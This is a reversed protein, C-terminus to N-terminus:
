CCIGNFFENPFNSKCYPDIYMPSEIHMIRVPKKQHTAGEGAGNVHCHSVVLLPLVPWDDGTELYQQSRM